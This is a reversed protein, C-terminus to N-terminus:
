KLVEITEAAYRPILYGREFDECFYDAATSGSYHFCRMWDSETADRVKLTKGPCVDAWWGQKERPIDREIVERSKLKIRYRAM